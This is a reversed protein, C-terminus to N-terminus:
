RKMLWSRFTTRANACRTITMCRPSMTSCFRCDLSRPSVPNVWQGDIYFKLYERM